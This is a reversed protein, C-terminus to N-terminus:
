PCASRPRGGPSRVAAVVAPGSCRVFRVRHESAARKQQQAGGTWCTISVISDCWLLSRAMTDSGRRLVARAAAVNEAGGSVYWRALFILVCFLLFSERM